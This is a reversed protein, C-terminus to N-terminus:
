ANQEFVPNAEATHAARGNDATMMYRRGQFTNTHPDDSALGLSLASRTRTGSKRRAIELATIAPLRRSQVVSPLPAVPCDPCDDVKGPGQM